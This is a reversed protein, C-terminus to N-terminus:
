IEITPSLPGAGVAAARGADPRTDGSVMRAWYPTLDLRVDLRKLLNFIGGLKRHLFLLQRPPPSYKLSQAFSLGADRARRAYDADAFVFPQRDPEFPEMSNILLEAFLARPGPPERPDLLGFDIGAQVIKDPERRDIVRLMNVYEMRFSDSYRITAGFDLLVIRGDEPRVLFNAPNPDTQVFGWDFFEACYLDLIARAFRTRAEESPHTRRWESFPLGEEYSMTLVRSGCFEPYTTPVLFRHDGALLRGYAELHVREKQYDAELHLIVRFEEFVERLNIKRGSLSLWGQAFRRLMALDSDISERIGPYQIKVAVRAGDLWASHVQGISASAAPTPDLNEFQTRKDQGLDEILVQELLEFDVPKAAGQLQSLVELAEEPLYDAADLSLLQGAKMAAGKLESLQKAVVEAQRIRTSVVRDRVGEASRVVTKAVRHAVEESAVKAAMKAIRSSRAWLSSRIGGDDAM